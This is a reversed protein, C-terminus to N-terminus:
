SGDEPRQERCSSIEVMSARRTTDFSHTVDRLGAEVRIEDQGVEVHHEDTATLLCAAPERTNIQFTASVESDSVVSWAIMQHPVNYASGSYSSLAIGWGVTFLVSLAGLALLGFVPVNGLRRWTRPAQTADDGSPDSRTSPM